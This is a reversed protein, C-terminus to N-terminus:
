ASMLSKADYFLVSVQDRVERLYCFKMMAFISHERVERPQQRDEAYMKLEPFFAPEGFNGITKIIRIKQETNSASRLMTRLESVIGRLVPKNIQTDIGIKKYMMNMRNALTGVCLMLARTVQRDESAGDVYLDKYLQQL